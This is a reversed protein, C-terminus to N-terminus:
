RALKKSMIVVDREEHGVQYKEAGQVTYKWKLYMKQAVVNQDWVRLWITRFGRKLANAEGHLALLRGAGRARYNKDVYLRQLEISAGPVICKPPLSAPLLKLYGCPHFQSDQCIFYLAKSYEIEERISEKGFAENTYIELEELPLTSKYADIFSQRGFSALFEVDSAQAMGITFQEALKM